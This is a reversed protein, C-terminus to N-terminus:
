VVSKRDQQQQQFAGFLTQFDNYNPNFSQQSEQYGPKPMKHFAPKAECKRSDITHFKQVIVKDTSDSDAFTVYAFGRSKGNSLDEILDVTLVNGYKNFYDKIIDTTTSHRLGGIFVRRSQIAPNKQHMGADITSKPIARKTDVEKNLIKHPRSSQALDTMYGHTFVVFGFGRSKQTVNDKVVTAEHVTGYSTFYEVLTDSNAEQPLGGVFLKRMSLPEEGEELNQFSAEKRVTLGAEYKDKWSKIEEDKKILVQQLDLVRKEFSESAFKYHKVLEQLEEINDGLEMM